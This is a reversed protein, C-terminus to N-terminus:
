QEVTQFLESFYSPGALTTGVIGKQYAKLVEM